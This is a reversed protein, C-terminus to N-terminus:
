WIKNGKMILSTNALKYMVPELFYEFSNLAHDNINARKMEAKDEFQALEMEQKLLSVNHNLRLLHRSMISQTIVIRDNIPFKKCKIFKLWTIRRKETEVNLWQIFGIAANDVRVKLPFPSSWGIRNCYDRMCNVYFDVVESAVKNPAKDVVRNDQVYEGYIDVGENGVSLTAGGFHFVTKGATATTGWGYDGGALMYEHEQYIAPQITGLLHTYIAGKEYGPLGWDVTSARKRDLNWTDLINKIESEGLYERAVRWNTYHFLVKKELGEGVKITIVQSQSGTTKLINTNWALHKSCYEIYPSSKAWPNCANFVIYQVEQKIASISRCAELVSKIDDEEFQFREEFFIFAYKVSGFRSLGSLRAGENKRNNGNLFLVRLTNGNVTITYPRKTTTYPIEYADLVRQIDNWLEVANSELKRLAIWGFDKPNCHLCLLAWLLIITTTKASKRGGVLNFESIPIKVGAKVARVIDYIYTYAKPVRIETM